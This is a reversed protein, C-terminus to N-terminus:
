PKKLPEMITSVITEKVPPPSIKRLKDNLAHIEDVM